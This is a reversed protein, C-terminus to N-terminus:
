RYFWTARLVTAIDNVPSWYIPKMQLVPLSVMHLRSIGVPVEVSDELREAVQRRRASARSDDRVRSRLVNKAQRDDPTARGSSRDSRPAAEVRVFPKGSIGDDLVPPRAPVSSGLPLSSALTLPPPPAAGDVPPSSPRPGPSGVTHLAPSVPGPATSSLASDCPQQKAATGEAEMRLRALQAMVGELVRDHDLAPQRRRTVACFERRLEASADIALEACCLTMGDHELPGDGMASMDTALGGDVAVATAPVAHNPAIGPAAGSASQQQQQQGERGHKEHHKAALTAIIAALKEANERSLGPSPSRDRRAFAHNRRHRSSGLGLWARELAANDGPSFPRLPLKSASPKSKDASSSSSSSSGAITAAALPDDIPIHSAYFFQARLPPIDELGPTPTPPPAPALRCPPTLTHSRLHSTTM